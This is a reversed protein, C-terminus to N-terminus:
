NYTIGVIGIYIVCGWLVISILSVAFGARPMMPFVNDEQLALIGLILGTLALIMALLGVGGMRSIMEGPNRISITTALFSILSMMGFILAMMGRKSHRNSTFIYRKEFISM